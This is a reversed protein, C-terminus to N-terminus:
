TKSYHGDNKIIYRNLISRIIPISIKAFNMKEESGLKMDDYKLEKARM